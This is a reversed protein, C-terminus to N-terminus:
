ATYLRNVILEPVSHIVIISMATWLHCHYYLEKLNLNCLNVTKTMIGKRSADQPNVTRTRVSDVTSM